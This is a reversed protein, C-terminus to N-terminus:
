KGHDGLKAIPNLQGITNDFDNNTFTWIAANGVINQILNRKYKIGTLDYINLHKSHVHRWCSTTTDNENVQLFGLNSKGRDSEDCDKRYRTADRLDANHRGEISNIIGSFTKQTEPQVTMSCSPTNVERVWRSTYQWYQRCPLDSNHPMSGVAVVFRGTLSRISLIASEDMTITTQTNMGHSCAM